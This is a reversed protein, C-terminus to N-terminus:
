PLFLRSPWRLWKRWWPLSPPPQTVPFPPSNLALQDKDGSEELVWLLTHAEPINAALWERDRTLSEFEAAIEERKRKPDFYPCKRADIPEDCITGEWEEPSKSRLMCLGITQQVPLGNDTIRNYSPNNEGGVKKRSDLPHRYNHRCVHPVRSLGERVRELLADSLLQTVRAKIDDKSKM